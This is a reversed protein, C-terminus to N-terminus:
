RADIQSQYKKGLARATELIKGANNYGLTEMDKVWADYIPRVKQRWKDIEEESLEFFEHGKEKMWKIGAVHGADLTRGFVGAMYDGSTDMILKQLDPPLKEFSNKNMGGWFAEVNFHGLTHYKTVEDLKYSRIPALPSFVAEAMGRQMAMYSDPGLIEQPIVGLLEGYKRGAGTWVIAKMGQLDELSRVPKKAMHLEYLACTHMWLLKIDPYEAAIEPFQRSLEWSALAAAEASQFMFPLAIVDALPFKGPNLSQPSFAIDAIGSKVAEYHELIPTLTRPAYFQIILRGGSKKKMDEIWPMVGNVISPHMPPYISVYKLAYTDGAASINNALPILSCGVLLVGILGLKIIKEM